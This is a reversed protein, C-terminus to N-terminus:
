FCYLGFVKYVFWGYPYRLQYRCGLCPIYYLEYNHFASDYSVDFDKSADVAVKVILCKANAFIERFENRALM